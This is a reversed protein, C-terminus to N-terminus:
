LIGKEAFSYTEQHTIILHDVLKIDILTLIGALDKTLKIDAESPLVTGSPHNHAIILRAANYELAKQIICRPYVATENITGRFMKEFALLRRHNDMFLVAFVENKESALNLQLYNKVHSSSNLTQKSSYKLRTELCHLASKILEDDNAYLDTKKVKTLKVGKM